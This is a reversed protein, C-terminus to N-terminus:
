SLDPAASLHKLLIEASTEGEFPVHGTLMEHLMVGAAYVDVARTYSGRGVEPAMYYVTGVNQTQGRHQSASTFKCLGYDGVKVQGNELFVNAPKLDRHIIGQEHLAHVAAAVQGFWQVILDHGLGQPHRQLVA